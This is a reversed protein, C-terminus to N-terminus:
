GNSEGAGQRAAKAVAEKHEPSGIDPHRPGLDQSACYPCCVAMLQRSGPRVQVVEFEAGCNKCRM